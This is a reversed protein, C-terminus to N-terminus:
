LLAYASLVKSVGYSNQVYVGGSYAYVNIRNATGVAGSFYGTDGYILTGAGGEVAVLAMKGDSANHVFVLARGVMDASITLLNTSALNYQELKQRLVGNGQRALTNGAVGIAAGDQMTQIGTFTQATNRGAAIMSAPVQLTFGGTDITGGGTVNVGVLNSRKIKKYQGAALDWIGIWDNAGPTVLETDLTAITKDTM